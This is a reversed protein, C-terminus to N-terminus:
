RRIAPSRPRWWANTSPRWREAARHCRECPASRWGFPRTRRQWTRSRRPSGPPDRRGDLDERLVATLEGPEASGLRVIGAYREARPRWFSWMGAAQLAPVPNPPASPDQDVVVLAYRDRPPVGLAAAAAAAVAPDSGRGELLAEFLAGRRSDERHHLELQTLRYADSVVTSFRDVTEWSRGPWTWCWSRNTPRGAGCRVTMAQWLVRGRAATRRFCPTWRCARSRAGGGPTPPPPRSTAPARAAARRLGGARPAPQRPLDRTPRRPLGPRRLCLGLQARPRGDRGPRHARRRGHLLM